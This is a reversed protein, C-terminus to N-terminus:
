QWRRPPDNPRDDGLWAPRPRPRARLGGASLLLALVTVVGTAPYFWDEGRSGAPRTTYASQSAHKRAKEKRRAAAQATSTGGPPVPQAPPPPPPVAAPPASAVPSPVPVPVPLVPAPAPVAAHV